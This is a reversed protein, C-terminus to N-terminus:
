KVRSEFAAYANPSRRNMWEIYALAVM